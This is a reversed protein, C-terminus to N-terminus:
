DTYNVVGCLHLECSWMCFIYVFAAYVESKKKRINNNLMLLLMLKMLKVSVSRNM